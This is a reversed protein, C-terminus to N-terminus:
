MTPARMVFPMSKTSISACCAGLAFSFAQAVRNQFEFGNSKLSSMKDMLILM